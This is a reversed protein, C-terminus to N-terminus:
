EQNGYYQQYQRVLREQARRQKIEDVKKNLKVGGVAAGGAAVGAVVRSADRKQMLKKLETTQSPNKSVAKLKEADSLSKFANLNNVGKMKLSNRSFDRIGKGGAHGAAKRM